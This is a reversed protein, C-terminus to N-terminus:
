ERSYLVKESHTYRIYRKDEVKQFSIVSNKFGEPDHSTKLRMILKYNKENEQFRKLLLASDPKNAELIYDPNGVIETMYKFYREYDGPHRDKIHQVREDTIIVEDTTIDESVCRYLERDIKGVFQVGQKGGNREVGEIIGSDAQKAVTKGGKAALISRRADERTWQAVQIREMLPKLNNERCFEQYALNQRGLLRAAKNYAEDM